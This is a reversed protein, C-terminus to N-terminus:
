YENPAPNPLMPEVLNYGNCSVTAPPSLATSHWPTRASVRDRKCLARPPHLGARVRCNLREKVEVFLLVVPQSFFRNCWNTSATYYLHDHMGVLGPIVTHGSLDLVTAGKPV